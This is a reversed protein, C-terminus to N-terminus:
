DASDSPKLFGMVKRLSDQKELQIHVTGNETALDIEPRKERVPVCHGASIVRFSEEAKEIAAYPLYKWRLGEPVYLAEKGFRYKEVKVASRFDESLNDITKGPIMCSPVAM